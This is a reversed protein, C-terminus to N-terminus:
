PYDELEYDITFRANNNEARMEGEYMVAIWKERDANQWRMIPGDDTLAWGLFTALQSNSMGGKGPTVKGNVMYTKGKTVQEPWHSKADSGEVLARLNQNM